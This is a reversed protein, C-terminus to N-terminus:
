GVRLRLRAIRRGTLDDLLVVQVNAGKARRAEAFARDVLRGLDAATRAAPLSYVASTSGDPNEWIPLVMTAM